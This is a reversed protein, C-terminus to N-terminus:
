SKPANGWSSRRALQIAEELTSIEGVAQAEQILALLRGVEPGPTLGLAQILERGSVLPPPKVSEEFHNFYENLLRSVTDLLLPWTRSEAPTEHTALCDALSLLAIDPGTVGTKRFYRYVARRTLSGTSALHLPRMHGAVIHKVTRCAENSLHLQQLRHQALRASVAEHGFFRIRGDEEVM